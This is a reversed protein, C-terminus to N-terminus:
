DFDHNIVSAAMRKLVTKGTSMAPSLPGIHKLHSDVAGDLTPNELFDM